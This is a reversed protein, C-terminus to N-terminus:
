GSGYGKIVVCCKVSVTSVVVVVDQVEDKNTSTSM